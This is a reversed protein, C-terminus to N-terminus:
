QKENAAQAVQLLFGDFRDKIITHNDELTTTVQQVDSLAKPLAGKHTKVDTKKHAMILIQSNKLGMSQGFWKHWQDLDKEEGVKTADYVYVVGLGGHKIGM